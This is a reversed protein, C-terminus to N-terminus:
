NQNMSISVSIEGGNLLSPESAKYDRITTQLLRSRSSNTRQRIKEQKEDYDEFYEGKSESYTKKRQVIEKSISESKQRSFGRRFLGDAIATPSTTQQEYYQAEIDEYSDSTLLNDDDSPESSCAILVIRNLKQNYILFAFSWLSNAFLEVDNAINPNYSFIQSEQISIAEDIQAWMTQLLLADCTERLALSLTQDIHSKVWELNPERSFEDAKAYTFDFDPYFSASMCSKLHFLTKQSATYTLVNKEETGSINHISELDSLSSASSVHEVVKINKEDIEPMPSVQPPSLAELKSAPSEGEKNNKCMEKYDRKNESTM